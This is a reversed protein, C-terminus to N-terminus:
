CISSTARWRRFFSAWLIMPLTSLMISLSHDATEIFEMLRALARHSKGLLGIYRRASLGAVDVNALAAAAPYVEADLTRWWDTAAGVGSLLHLVALNHMAVLQELRRAAPWPQSPSYVAPTRVTSQGM